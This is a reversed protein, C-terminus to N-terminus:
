VCIPLLSKSFFNLKTLPCVFIQLFAYIEKGQKIQRHSWMAVLNWPKFNNELWGIYPWYNKPISNNTGTNNLKTSIIVYKFIKCFLNFFKNRGGVSIKFVFLQPVAANHQLFWFKKFTHDGGSFVVSKLFTYKFINQRLM